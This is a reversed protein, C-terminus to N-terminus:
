PTRYSLSLIEVRETGPPRETRRDAYREMVLARLDESLQTLEEASLYLRM